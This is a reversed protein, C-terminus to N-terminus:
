RIDSGEALGPAAVEGPKSRYLLPCASPNLKCFREFDDAVGSPVISINAQLHGRCWGYTPLALTGESILRRIQSPLAKACNM